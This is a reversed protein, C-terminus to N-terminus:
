AAGMRRLAWRTCGGVAAGVILPVGINLVGMDLGAVAFLIATVMVGDPGHPGNLLGWFVVESALLGLGWGAGNGAIWWYPADAYYWWLVIAQVLGLIAGAALGVLPAILLAPVPCAGFLLAMGLPVGVFLGLLGGLGSAAVWALVGWGHLAPFVQRISSVQVGAAVVWFVVVGLAILAQAAGGGAHFLSFNEVQLSALMGLSLAAVSVGGWVAGPRRTLAATWQHRDM